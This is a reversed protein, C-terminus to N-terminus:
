KRVMRWDVLALGPITMMLVLASAAMMWATDAPDIKSAAAQAFAPAPALTFGLTASIAAGMAVITAERKMIDGEVQEFLTKTLRARGSAYRRTSPLSSSRAMASRAPKLPGSSPK